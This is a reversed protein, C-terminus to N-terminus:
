NIRTNIIEMNMRRDADSTPLIKDVTMRDWDVIIEQGPFAPAKIDWTIIHRKGMPGPYCVLVNEGKTTEVVAVDNDEEEIREEEEDSDTEFNEFGDFDPHTPEPNYQSLRKMLNTIQSAESFFGEKDLENAVNNLKAIVTRKNM